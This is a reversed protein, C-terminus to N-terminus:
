WIIEIPDDYDQRGADISYPSACIIAQSKVLLIEVEPAQYSTKQKTKMYTYNQYDGGKSQLFLAFINLFQLFM